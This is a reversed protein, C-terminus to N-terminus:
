AADRQLRSYYRGKVNAVLVWHRLRQAEKASIRYNRKHGYYGLTVLLFPSSLLAPSDIGVNSKLFNLAFEM